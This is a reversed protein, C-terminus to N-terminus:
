PTAQWCQLHGWWVCWSTGAAACWDDVVVATICMSIDNSAEIVCMNGSYCSFIAAPYTQHTIGLNDAHLLRRTAGARSAFSLGAPTPHCVPSGATLCSVGCMDLTGAQM